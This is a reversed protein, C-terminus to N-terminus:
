VASVFASVASVLAAAESLEAEPDADVAVVLADSADVEAVLAAVDSVDALVEADVAVVLADSADV